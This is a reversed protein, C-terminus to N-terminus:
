DPTQILTIEVRRNQSRSAANDNSALPRTDGLGQVAFHTPPFTSSNVLWNKVAQARLLSLKLNAAPSGTKDTHGDILVRKGPNAQIWVLVSQLALKAQPKLEAKGSDFLATNDLRIVEPMPRPQHYSRLTANIQRNLTHGQYLGIDLSLPIGAESISALRTQWTQLRHIAQGRLPEQEPSLIQYAQIASETQRILQLNNWASSLSFAALFLAAIAALSALRQLCQPCAYRKPFGDTLPEPLPLNSVRAQRPRTQLGSAAIADQQWPSDPRISGSEMWGIGNLTTHKNQQNQPLLRPLLQKDTFLFLWQLAAITTLAQKRLAPTSQCATSYLRLWQRALEQRATALDAAPNIMTPSAAMSGTESQFHGIVLLGAPLSHGLHRQASGWAHQWNRLDHRATHEPSIQDPEVALILGKICYGSKQWNSLQQPHRLWLWRQHLGERYDEGNMLRDAAPGGVLIADCAMGTYPTAQRLTRWWLPLMISLWLLSLLVATIDTLPLSHWILLLGPFLVAPIRLHHWLSWIM